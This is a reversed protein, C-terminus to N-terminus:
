KILVSNNEELLKKIDVNELALPLGSIHREHHTDSGAFDVMNNKLLYDAVKKVGKGYYGILSLLNIQFLFGLEKFRDYQDLNNHYYSYREPHALIPKFGKMQIEFSIDEVHSPPTAYSFETLIHNNNYSLLPTNTKLLNMFYDDMMYEAAFDIKISIDNRILEAKLKEASASITELNNRYMDGIIHPTAIIHNCGLGILSRVLLVSTGVDPAGDDIGPLLHCHIETWNNISKKFAKDKNNGFLWNM